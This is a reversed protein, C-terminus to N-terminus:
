SAKRWQCKKHSKLIGRLVQSVCNPSYGEEKVAEMSPYVALVNGEMDLREVAVTHNRGKGANTQRYKELTRPNQKNQKPTVLRLNDLNNDQKDHNIHDVEMGKPIEGMFAEWVVRHAYYQGGDINIVLYHNAQERGKTKKGKYEITGDAYVEASGFRKTIM